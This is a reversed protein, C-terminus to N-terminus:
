NLLRNYENSVVGYCECTASELCRRDVFTITGRDNTIAGMKALKEAAMSVSERRVGLMQAILDHTIELKDSDLRDHILLLWRALQQPIRHHRNCVATQSVQTMLAQMYRLLSGRFASEIGFEAKIYSAKMRFAEGASHVIALNTSSDSGTFLEIGLVGDNGIIGIETTTGNEVQCLLTVIATTPFYAFDIKDGPLHLIQGVQVSVTELSPWIHILEAHPIAALLHNKVPELKTVSHSDVAFYISLM